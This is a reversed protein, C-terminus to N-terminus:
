DEPMVQFGRDVTNVIGWEGDIKALNFFTRHKGYGDPFIMRWNIHASAILDDHVSVQEIEDIAFKVKIDPIREKVEKIHNSQEVVSVVRFENDNGVLYMMGEPHWSKLMGDGDFAEQQSFYTEILQIIEENQASM